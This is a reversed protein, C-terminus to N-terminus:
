FRESSEFGMGKKKEDGLGLRPNWQDRWVLGPRQVVEVGQHVQEKFTWKLKKLQYDEQDIITTHNKLFSAIM